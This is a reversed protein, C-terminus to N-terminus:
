ILRKLTRLRVGIESFLTSTLHVHIYSATLFQCGKKKVMSVILITAPYQRWHECPTESLHFGLM